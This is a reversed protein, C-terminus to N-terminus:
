FLSIYEAKTTSIATSEQKKSLWSVLKDGLFQASGSTSHKTDQCWTHDADAYATLGTRIDKSYWLSMNTTGKLYWFVRKVATLHTDIPKVMPTDVPQSSEMGYKKVMKLAYKSQNIFIGRPSQSIQLRYLAKKLRYMYNPHDQDVFGEPQNVYVEKKLFLFVSLTNTSSIFFKSSSLM